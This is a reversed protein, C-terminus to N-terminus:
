KLRSVHSFVTLTVKLCAFFVCVLRGDVEYHSQLEKSCSDAFVLFGFGRSKGTQKDCMIVAREVEFDLATFFSCLSEPTSSWSLGGLFVKKGM